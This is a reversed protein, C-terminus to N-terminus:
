GSAEQIRAALGYILDSNGNQPRLVSISLNETV